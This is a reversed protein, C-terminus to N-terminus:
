EGWVAGPAIEAIWPRAASVRAFNSMDQYDAGPDGSSNVGAVRWGAATRLWLSGGSDGPALVGELPSVPEADGMRNKGPGDPQDLDVSLVGGGEQTAAVRDIVNEAAAKALGHRPGFRWGHGFPAVGRSGYGLMVARAGQEAAGAYLTAPRGSDAIPRDLEIIAFDFGGRADVDGNWRPHVWHRRGRLVAGGGTRVHYSAGSTGDDFV